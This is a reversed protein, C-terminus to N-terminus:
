SVKKGEEQPKNEWGELEGLGEITDAYFVPDKGAKRQEMYDDLVKFAIKGLIAIAV